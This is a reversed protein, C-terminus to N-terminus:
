PCKGTTYTTIGDCEALCANDYTKKNCGCVPNSFTPCICNTNVTGQPCNTTNNSTKKCSLLVVTFLLFYCKKIMGLDFVFAM